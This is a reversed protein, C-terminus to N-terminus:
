VLIYFHCLRRCWRRHYLNEWGLERCLRTRITGRWAGTVALAACYQTRDLRQTFNLHMQPEYKHYVISGCDLHPRVNLKYIQHLVDRSIYKSLFKIIGIGRRAKKIEEKIHSQIYLKSDLIMGLHKHESIRAVDDNGFSLPPHQKRPVHM